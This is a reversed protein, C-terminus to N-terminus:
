LRLRTLLEERSIQHHLAVEDLISALTGVRLPKHNPITVHHVGNEQTTLRLHSGVQRSVSYGFRALAKVLEPGALDRPLRM